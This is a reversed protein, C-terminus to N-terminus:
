RILGLSEAYHVASNLYDKPNLFGDDVAEMVTEDWWEIVTRETRKDRLEVHARDREFWTYLEISARPVSVAVQKGMQTGEKTGDMADGEDMGLM